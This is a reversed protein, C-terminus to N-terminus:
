FTTPTPYEAIAAMATHVHSCHRSGFDRERRRNRPSRTALPRSAVEPATGTFRNPSGGMSVASACAAAPTRPSAISRVTKDFHDFRGTASRLEARGIGGLHVLASERVRVVSHRDHDVDMFISGAVGRLSSTMPRLKHKSSGADVRNIRTPHHARVYRTVVGGVTRLPDSAPNDAGLAARARSTTRVAGGSDSQAFLAKPILLRQPDGGSGLLAEVPRTTTRPSLAPPMM